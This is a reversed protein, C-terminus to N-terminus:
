SGTFNQKQIKWVKFYFNSINSIFPLVFSSSNEMSLNKSFHNKSKKGQHTKVLPKNYFTKFSVFYICTNLYAM